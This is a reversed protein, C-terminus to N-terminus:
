ISSFNLDINNYEGEEDLAWIRFYKKSKPHTIGKQLLEMAEQFLDDKIRSKYSLLSLVKKTDLKGNSTEFAGMVMTKIHESESTVNKELFEHLKDKCAIVALDDLKIPENVSVELKISKDFNFVTFNGKKPKGSNNNEEMYKEYLDNAAEVVNSKFATLRKNIIEAEKFLQATKREKLKEYPTVRKREVKNGKEDVWFPDSTKHVTTKHVM